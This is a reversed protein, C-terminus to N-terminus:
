RPLNVGPSIPSSVASMHYYQEEVVTPLEQAPSYTGSHGLDGFSVFGERSTHARQPGHKPTRRRAPPPGAGNSGDAEHLKRLSSQSTTKNWKSRGLLLGLIVIAIFIITGIIISSIKAAEAKKESPSKEHVESPVATPTPARTPAIPAPPTVSTSKIGSRSTTSEDPSTSRMADTFQSLHAM